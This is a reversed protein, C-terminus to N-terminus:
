FSPDEELFLPDEEFEFYARAVDLLARSLSETNHTRRKFVLQMGEISLLEWRDAGHQDLVAQLTEPSGDTLAVVKYSWEPQLFQDLVAFLPQMMPLMAEFMLEFEEWTFPIDEAWEEGSWDDWWDDSDGFGMDSSPHYIWDEYELAYFCGWHIFDELEFLSDLPYTELEWNYAYAVTILDPVLAPTSDGSGYFHDALDWNLGILALTGPFEAELAQWDVRDYGSQAIGVVCLYPDTGFILDDYTAVVSFGLDRLADAEQSEPDVLVPVREFYAHASLAVTCVVMCVVVFLLSRKM